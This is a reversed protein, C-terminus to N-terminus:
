KRWSNKELEVFYEYMSNSNLKLKEKKLIYNQFSIAFYEKSNFNTYLEKDQVDAYESTSNYLELFDDYNSIFDQRIDIYHGIEHIFSKRIAKQRSEIYITKTDPNTYALINHNINLSEELSNSTIIINWNDSEFQNRIEIPLVYWYNAAYNLLSNPVDGETKICEPIDVSKIIINNNDKFLENDECLCDTPVYGITEFAEIKSWGSSLNSLVKINDGINCIFISKSTDEPKEKAYCFESVVMDSNVDIIDISNNSIEIHKNETSNSCGCCLILLSALSIVALKNTYTTKRFYNNDKM